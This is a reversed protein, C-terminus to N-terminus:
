ESGKTRIERQHATANPPVPSGQRPAAGRDEGLARGGAQRAAAMSAWAALEVLGADHPAFARCAAVAAADVQYPALAVLLAFRGPALDASSLARLHPETWSRSPGPPQGDWRRLADLVLARVAEPVSREGAADIVAAAQAFARSVHEPGAAAWALDSPLPAAALLDLSRGPAPAPHGASRRLRTLVPMVARLAGSPVHPPLPFDGLFVHAMRNLYHLLVAVAALEPLQDRDPAPHAPPVPGQAPVAAPRTLHAEAWARAPGHAAATDSAVLSTLMSSHVTVCFPCANHESVAVAVAEKAALPARGPAVMAERLMVWSAALVDPSPSHLAIPPALLGFERELDRYVRAVKPSAARWPVPTVHRVQALSARRLAPRLLHAAQM